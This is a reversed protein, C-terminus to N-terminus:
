PSPVFASCFGKSPKTSRLPLALCFQPLLGASEALEHLRRAAQRDMEYTRRFTELGQKRQESTLSPWAILAIESLQELVLPRWPGLEFAQRYAQAFEGDFELLRLKVYALQGYTHPWLPRSGIAARYAELASRRSPEALSDGFPSQFYQWEYVRGLNDLYEGNDLLPYQSVSSRAAEFAVNWARESPIVGNAQWDDLFSRAQYAALGSRFLQVGIYLAVLLLLGSIALVTSQLQQRSKSSRSSM